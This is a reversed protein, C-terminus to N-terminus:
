KEASDKLAVTTKLLHDLCVARFKLDVKEIVDDHALRYNIAL